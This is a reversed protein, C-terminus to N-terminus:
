GHTIYIYKLDKGGAADLIWKILEQTQGISIPTDVLVAGSM